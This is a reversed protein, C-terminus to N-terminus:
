TSVVGTGSGPVKTAIPSPRAPKSTARRRLYAPAHVHKSAAANLQRRSENLSCGNRRLNGRVHPMGRCVRPLTQERAERVGRCVRHLRRRLGCLRQQLRRVHFRDCSPLRVRMGSLPARVRGNRGHGRLRRRMAQLSGRLNRLERHMGANNLGNAHSKSRQNRYLTAMKCNRGIFPILTPLAKAESGTRRRRM